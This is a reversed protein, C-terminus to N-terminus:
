IDGKLLSGIVTPIESEICKATSRYFHVIGDGRPKEWEVEIDYLYNKSNVTSIDVGPSVYIGRLTGQNKM